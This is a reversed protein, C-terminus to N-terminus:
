PSNRKTVSQKLENGRAYERRPVSAHEISEARPRTSARHIRNSRTERNIRVVFYKTLPGTRFRFGRVADCAHRLSGHSMRACGGIM